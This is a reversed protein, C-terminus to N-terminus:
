GHSHSAPWRHIQTYINLYETILTRHSTTRWCHCPPVASHLSKRLMARLRSPFRRAGLNRVEGKRQGWVCLCFHPIPIPVTQQWLRNDTFTCAQNILMSKFENHSQWKKEREPWLRPQSGHSRVNGKKWPHQKNPAQLSYAYIRRAAPVLGPSFDSRLSIFSVIPTHSHSHPDAAPRM